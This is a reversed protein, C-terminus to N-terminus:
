NSWPQLAMPSSNVQITGKFVVDDDFGEFGRWEMDVMTYNSIDPLNQAQVEAAPVRM